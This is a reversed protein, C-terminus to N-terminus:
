SGTSSKFIRIGNLHLLSYIALILFVITFFCLMKSTDQVMSQYHSNYSDLSVIQEKSTELSVIDVFKAEELKNLWGHEIRFYIEEGPQLLLFKEIDIITEVDFIYLKDAYEETHLIGYESRGSSEIEARVVTASLKITDEVFVDEQSNVTKTVAIFAFLIIVYLIILIITTKRKNIKM